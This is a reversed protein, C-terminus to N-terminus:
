TLLDRRRELESELDLQGTIYGELGPMLGLLKGTGNVGFILVLKGKFPRRKKLELGFRQALGWFQGSGYCSLM